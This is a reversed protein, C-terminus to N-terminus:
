ETAEAEAVGSWPVLAKGFAKVTFVPVSSRRVVKEAVSGLLFHELGRLGHTAMVIMSSEQDQAFTVIEHAPHGQRVYFRAEVEPGDTEEFFRELEAQAKEEIDPVVDYISWIGTNYFAPHLQDEIVHLLHLRANFLRGLAKAHGLAVRAYKSFDVPVLLTNQGQPGAMSPDRRHITLVPCPAMRVVEEAVSGLVVRRLGRRGHTGMIVLDIDHEDAYGIIAPAAAIDRVITREIRVTNTAEGPHGPEVGELLRKLLEVDSSAGASTPTHADAHLVEAFLLHLEANVRRALDLAYHLAEEACSSFDRPVLIRKVQLMSM